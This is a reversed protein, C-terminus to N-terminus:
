SSISVYLIKMLDPWSKQDGYDLWSFRTLDIGGAPLLYHDSSLARFASTPGNM